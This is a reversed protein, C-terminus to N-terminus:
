ASIQGVPWGSNGTILLRLYRTTTATFQITVTSNAAPQVHVACVPRPRQLDARGHQAAGIDAVLAGEVRVYRVLTPDVDFTLENGKAPDFTQQGSPVPTAFGKGDLSTQVAFTRDQRAHDDPM